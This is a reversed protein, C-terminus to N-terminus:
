EAFALDARSSQRACLFVLAAAISALPLWRLAGLLGFQDALWGTVIPGPALGVFNNALTLTAFATGHIAAPTLGAVMAGAPGTTAAALFMALGLMMLQPPGAPLALAASLLMACALCYFISLSVRQDPRGFLRDSVQGCVVMGIGCIALFLAALSGAGDVPLEYYRHFYTPLWAPLAGAVFLQLGSGAYACKITRSAFLSGLGPFSRKREYPQNGAQEALAAIRREGVALPFLLALALGGMAIVLFAMRWGHAAAVAGGIGVGLVQGLLAGAMFAASLTARLRKPFVSVVVAIGVSGYAAEGVGVLLRGALMQGYNDAAACLLTAISWLVAMATLSKVRGWRDALLSLPFTLLGVMIAVVGSLLGLQGDSLAWESKLLPFVANLVQRAMYDSILLGFALAFIVWAYAPIPHQREATM